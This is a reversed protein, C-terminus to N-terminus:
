KKRVTGVAALLLYVGFPRRLLEVDVTGGKRVPHAPQLLHDFEMQLIRPLMQRHKQGEGGEPLFPLPPPIM